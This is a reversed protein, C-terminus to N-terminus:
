ESGGGDKGWTCSRKHRWLHYIAELGSAFSTPQHYVMVIKLHRALRVNSRVIITKSFQFEDIVINFIVIFSSSGQKVEENSWMDMCIDFYIYYVWLYLSTEGLKYFVTGFKTSLIYFFVMKTYRSKICPYKKLRTERHM